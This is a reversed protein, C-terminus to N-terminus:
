RCRQYGSFFMLSLRQWGCIWHLLNVQFTFDLRLDLHFTFRFCFPCESPTLDTGGKFIFSWIEARCLHIDPRFNINLLCVFVFFWLQSEMEWVAGYGLIAKWACLSLLTSAYIVSPIQITSWLDIFQQNDDSLFEQINWFSSFLRIPFPLSFSLSLSCICKRTIHNVEWENSPLVLFLNSYSQYICRKCSYCFLSKFHSSLLYDYENTEYWFTWSIQLQM